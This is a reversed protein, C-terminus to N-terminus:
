RLRSLSGSKGIKRLCGLRFLQQKSRLAQTQAANLGLRNSTFLFPKAGIFDADFGRM